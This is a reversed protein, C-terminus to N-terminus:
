FYFCVMLCYVLCDVNRTAQKKSVGVWKASYTSCTFTSLNLMHFTFGGNKRRRAAEGDENTRRLPDFFPPSGAITGPFLIMNFQQFKSTFQHIKKVQWTECCVMSIVALNDKSAALRFPYPVRDNEFDTHGNLFRPSYKTLNREMKLQGTAWDVQM